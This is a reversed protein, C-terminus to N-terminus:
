NDTPIRELVGETRDKERHENYGGSYFSYHRTAGTKPFRKLAMHFAIDKGRITLM